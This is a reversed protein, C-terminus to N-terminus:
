IKARRNDSSYIKPASILRESPREKLFLEDKYTYRSSNVLSLFNRSIHIYPNYSVKHTLLEGRYLGELCFRYFGVLIRAGSLYSLLSTIRAFLELDIIVDVKKKRIKSINKLTDHLFLILNDDRITLINEKPLTNLVYIAEKNKEFILFYLEAQPFLEKIREIAPYALIASGIESLELFLIKKIKFGKMNKLSFVKRLKEVVTLIFCIPIGLWCDINTVLNTRM